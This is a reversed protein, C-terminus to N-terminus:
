IVLSLSTLRWIYPRPLRTAGIAGSEPVGACMLQWFEDFGAFSMRAKPAFRRVIADIIKGPDNQVWTGYTSNRKAADRALRAEAARAKGAAEGNDLDTVQIGIRRGAVVVIVDAGTEGATTNPDRYEDPTIGLRQM